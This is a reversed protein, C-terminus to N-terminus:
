FLLLNIKGSGTCTSKTEESGLFLHFKM